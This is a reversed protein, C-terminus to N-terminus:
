QPNTPLSFGTDGILPIQCSCTGNASLFHLTALNTAPVHDQRGTSNNKSVQTLLCSLSQRSARLQTHTDDLFLSQPEPM